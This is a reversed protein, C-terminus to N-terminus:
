KMSVERIGWAGRGADAQRGLEFITVAARQGYQGSMVEVAEHCFASEKSPSDRKGLIV